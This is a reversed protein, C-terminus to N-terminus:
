LICRRGGAEFWQDHLRFWATIYVLELCKTQMKLLGPEWEKVDFVHNSKPGNVKWYLGWIQGQLSHPCM